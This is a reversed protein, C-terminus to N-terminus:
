REKLHNEVTHLGDRFNCHKCRYRREMETHREFLSVISSTFDVDATTAEKSVAAFDHKESHSLAETWKMLARDGESATNCTKCEVFPNLTVMTHSSTTSPDLSHLQCVTRTIQAAATVREFSGDSAPKDRSFLSSFPRDLDFPDYESWQPLSEDYSLRCHHSIIAPYSYINKCTPGTCRFLSTALHLDEETANTQHARLARLCEERRQQNWDEIFQPLKTAAEEFVSLDAGAEVPLDEIITRFPEWFAVDLDLPMITGRPMTMELSRLMGDILRFRKRSTDLREEAMRATKVEAMFDLLTKSINKWIRETLPKPQKVLKHQSLKERSEENALEAAWGAAELKSIIAEFRSARALKLETGRDDIRSKDWEQFALIVKSKEKYAELKKATLADRENSSINAFEASLEQAAQISYLSVVRRGFVIDHEEVLYPLTKWLDSPFVLKLELRHAAFTPTCYNKISCVKCCRVFAGWNIKQVKATHCFGCFPHFLLSALAPESMFPNFDPIGARTRSTKWITTSTKSMLIQRLKKSTWTLRLLDYPKLHGLIEFLVDMPMEMISQLSRRRRASKKEVEGNDEQGESAVAKRKKAM